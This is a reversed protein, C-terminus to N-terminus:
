ANFNLAFKFGTQKQRDLSYFDCGDIHFEAPSSQDGIVIFQYDNERCGFALDRLAKNPEAVSTVILSIEDKM